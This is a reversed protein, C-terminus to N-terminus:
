LIFLCFYCNIKVLFGDRFQLVLFEGPFYDASLTLGRCYDNIDDPDEIDLDNLNMCRFVNSARNYVPLIDEVFGGINPRAKGFYWTLGIKYNWASLWRLLSNDDNFLPTKALLDEGLERKLESIKELQYPSINEETAVLFKDVNMRNSFLKRWARGFLNPFTPQQIWCFGQAVWSNSRNTSIHVITYKRLIIM